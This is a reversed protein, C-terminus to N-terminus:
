TVGYRVNKTCGEKGVGVIPLFPFRSACLFPNMISGSFDAGTVTVVKSVVSGASASERCHIGDARSHM